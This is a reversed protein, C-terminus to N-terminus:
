VVYTIEDFNLIQYYGSVPITKVDFQQPIEYGNTVPDIWASRAQVLHPIKVGQVNQLKDILHALILEGNFPLDKLFQNIAIEVPKEGTLISMGTSDIVLPDRYIRVNLFLHDPLYNIITIDSGAYKIENFYATISDYQETLIPSLTNNTEGAIKVIIVGNASGENVAAYKIIKSTTIQEATANTNNFKDSDDLLDFGYQFKLAATRYWSLTGSKQNGIATTLESKHTDFLKEITWISVAVIYLLLRWIAVKSTSDLTDLSPMASKRQLMEDYIIEITRAM